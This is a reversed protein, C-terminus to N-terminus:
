DDLIKLDKCLIFLITSRLIKELITKIVGGIDLRHTMGYIESALVSYIVQKYNKLSQYIINTKNITNILCIVFSIQSLM